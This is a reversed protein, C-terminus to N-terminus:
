QYCTCNGIVVTMWIGAIGVHHCINELDDGCLVIWHPSTFIFHLIVM